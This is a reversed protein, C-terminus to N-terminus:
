EHQDLRTHHHQSLLIIMVWDMGQSIDDNRHMLVAVFFYHRQELLVILYQCNSHLGWQRVIVWVYDM